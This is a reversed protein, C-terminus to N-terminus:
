RSAEIALNRAGLVNSKWFCSDDENARDVHSEAAFNLIADPQVDDMISRVLNTDSIDARIDRVGPALNEKMSGWGAFDIGIIEYKNQFSECFASAIFGLHGTVLLLRYSYMDGM